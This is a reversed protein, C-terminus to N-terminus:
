YNLDQIEIGIILRDDSFFVPDETNFDNYNFALGLKDSFLYPARISFGYSNFVDLQYFGGLTTNSGLFNFEQLGLM